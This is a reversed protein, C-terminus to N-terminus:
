STLTKNRPTELRTPDILGSVEELFLMLEVSLDKETWELDALHIGSNLKEIIPILEDMGSCIWADVKEGNISIEDGKLFQDRREGFVDKLKQRSRERWARCGPEQMLQTAFDTIFGTQEVGFWLATAIVANNFALIANEVDQDYSRDRDETTPPFSNAWDEWAQNLHRKAEARRSLFGALALGRQVLEARAPLQSAKLALANPPAQEDHM